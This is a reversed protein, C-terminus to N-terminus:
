KSFSHCSNKKGKLPTASDLFETYFSKKDSSATTGALSPRATSLGM